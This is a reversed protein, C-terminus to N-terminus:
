HRRTFTQKSGDPNTCVFSANSPHFTFLYPKDSGEFQLTMQRDKFEKVLMQKTAAGEKAQYQINYGEEDYYHRHISVLEGSKTDVYFGTLSSYEEQSIDIQGDPQVVLTLKYREIQANSGNYDSLKKSGKLMLTAEQSIAVDLRENIGVYVFRSAVLFGSLLKGERNYNLLLLSGGDGEIYVPKSLVLLSNLDPHLDLRGIPHMSWGMLEQPQQSLGQRELAEKYQTRREPAWIHQFYSVGLAYAPDIVQTIAVAASLTDQGSTFLADQSSFPISLRPFLAVFSKEFTTPNTAVAEAKQVTNTEKQESSNSKCASMLLGLALFCSLISIPKRHM